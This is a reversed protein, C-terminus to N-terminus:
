PVGFEMGQAGQQRQERGQPEQLGATPSRHPQVGPARLVWPIRPPSQCQRPISSLRSSCEQSDQLPSLQLSTHGWTNPPLPQQRVRTGGREGPQLSQGPHKTTSLRSRTLTETTSSTNCPLACPQEWSRQGCGPASGRVAVDTPLPSPSGEPEGTSIGVGLVQPHGQGAPTAVPPYQPTNGPHQPARYGTHIRMGIRKM